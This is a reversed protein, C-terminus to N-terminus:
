LGAHGFFNSVLIQLKKDLHSFWQKVLKIQDSHNTDVPHELRGNIIEKFSIPLLNVLVGVVALQNPLNSRGKAFADLLTSLKNRLQPVGIQQYGGLDIGFRGLQGVLVVVAASFENPPYSELMNMLRSLLNDSIWKWNMYCGFLEVVSVIDVFYCLARKSTYNLSDFAHDGYKFLVCSAECHGGLSDPERSCCIGEKVRPNSESLPYLSSTFSYGVSSSGAFSDQLIDMLMSVFKETCVADKSFPCQKCPSFCIDVDSASRFAVLSHHGSELLSVVSKIASVHFNFKELTFFNEGIAFAFIHLMLLNCSADHKCLCLVKYSVELLFGIQDFVACLSASLISAAILQHTKAATETVNQGNLQYSKSSLPSSCTQESEMGNCVMIRRTILFDDILHLLIDLQCIESFLQCATADSIVKNTEMAFSKTFQLVNEVMISGSNAFLSGTINGLLLSFFVCVKEESQLDLELALSHLVEVINCNVQSRGFNKSALNNRAKIIRSISDEDKTHSFVVCCGTKESAINNRAQIIHSISNEDKTDSFIDCFGTTGELGVNGGLPNVLEQNASLHVYSESRVIQSPNSTQYCGTQSSKEGVLSDNGIVLSKKKAHHNDPEKTVDNVQDDFLGSTLHQDNEGTSAKSGVNLASAVYPDIVHHVLPEAQLNEQLKMISPPFDTTNMTVDIDRVDSGKGTGSSINNAHNHGFNNLEEHKNLDRMFTLASNLESEESAHVSGVNDKLVSPTPMVLELKNSNIEVNIVDCYQHPEFTDKDNTPERFLEKVLYHSHDEGKLGVVSCKIVPLTPSLPREIAERYRREDDADDLMLLKMCDERTVNEFFVLDAQDNSVARIEEIINLPNNENIKSKCPFCPLMSCDIDIEDKRVQSSPQLHTIGQKDEASMFSGHMETHLGRSANIIKSMESNQHCIEKLPAGKTRMLNKGPFHREILHVQNNKDCFSTISSLPDHIKRKKGGGCVQIKDTFKNGEYVSGSRHADDFDNQICSRDTKKAESATMKNHVHEADAHPVNPIILGHSAFGEALKSSTALFTADIAQSGTLERDPCTTSTSCVTSSQPRNRSSDRTLPDVESKTGTIKRAQQRGSAAFCSCERTSGPTHFSSKYCCNGLQLDRDSCRLDFSVNQLNYRLSDSSGEIHSIQDGLMKLHCSLLIFEQKLLHFQQSILKKEAKELKTMRKAYKLQKKAFKLQEKLTKVVAPKACADGKLKKDRSCLCGSAAERESIIEVLKRQLNEKHQKEDELMQKMHEVHVKEDRAERHQVELIKSLEEAKTRELEAHKKEMITRQKEEEILKDLEHVKTREAVLKARAENVETKFKELSLRVKEAKKKEANALKRVDVCKSKEMDLLKNADAAKKMAIEAKKKEADGRMKEKVLSEKLMKIEADREAIHADLSNSHDKSEMQQYASIESKLENIQKELTRIISSEEEKSRKHFEANEQEQNVKKLNANESELKNVQQELIQVAQRLANRSGELKLFKQRLKACCPNLPDSDSAVDAAM